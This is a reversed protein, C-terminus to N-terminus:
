SRVPGGCRLTDSLKDALHLGPALLGILEPVLEGVQSGFQCAQRLLDAGVSSIGGWGLFFWGGAVPQTKQWRGAAAAVMELAIVRLWHALLHDFM